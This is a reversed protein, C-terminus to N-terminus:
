VRVYKGDQLHLGTALSLPLETIAKWVKESNGSTTQPLLRKYFMRKGQAKLGKLYECIKRISFLYVKDGVFNVYYGDYAQGQRILEIMNALKKKEMFLTSYASRRVKIEAVYCLHNYNFYADVYSFEDETFQYEDVGLSYALSAFKDRGIKENKLFENM